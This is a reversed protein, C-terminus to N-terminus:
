AFRGMVLVAGVDYKIGEEVFQLIVLTRLIPEIPV